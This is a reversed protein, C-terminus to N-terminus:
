TQIINYFNQIENMAESYTYYPGFNILTRLDSSRLRIETPYLNKIKNYEIESVVVDIYKKRLDVASIDNIGLSIIKDIDSKDNIYLRVIVKDDFLSILFIIM